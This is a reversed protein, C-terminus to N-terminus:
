KGGPWCYVTSDPILRHLGYGTPAAEYCFHAQAHKVTIRKILRRKSEVSSDVEGVFRVEGYGDPRPRRTRLRASNL